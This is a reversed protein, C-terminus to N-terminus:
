SAQRLRHAGLLEHAEEQGPLVDARPVAQEAGAADDLHDLLQLSVLRSDLRPFRGDKRDPDGAIM